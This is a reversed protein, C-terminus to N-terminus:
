PAACPLAPPARRCQPVRARVRNSTGLTRNLAVSSRDHASLLGCLFLSAVQLFSLRRLIQGVAAPSITKGMRSLEMLVLVLISLFLLGKLVNQWKKFFPVIRNM